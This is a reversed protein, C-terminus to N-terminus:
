EYVALADLIADVFGRMDPEGGNTLIAVTLKRQRDTAVLAGSSGDHGVFERGGFQYLFTGLGYPVPCADPCPLNRTTSTDIMREVADAGIARGGFLAEAWRAADSASAMMGGAGSDAVIPLLQRRLQHPELPEFNVPDVELVYSPLPEVDTEDVFHTHSLGLPDFFRARMEQPLSRGTAAAVVLGAIEYNGDAYSWCDGPDCAQPPIRELLDRLGLVHGRDRDDTPTQALGSTHSLLQRMTVGRLFHLRGPLQPLWRGIPDDLQVVGERDLDLAIAAVYNKTISALRFEDDPQIPERRELDAFGSVVAVERGELVVAVSAGPIDRTALFQETARQIRERM